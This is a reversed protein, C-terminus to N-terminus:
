TSTSCAEQYILRHITTKSVGVTGQILHFTSRNHLPMKRVAQVFEERPYKIPQGNAKKGSAVDWEGNLADAHAVNWKQWLRSVTEHSVFLLLAGQVISGWRLQGNELRELLFEKLKQCDNVTLNTRIVMKLLLGSFHNHGFNNHPEFRYKGIWAM